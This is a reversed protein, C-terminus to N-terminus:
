SLQSISVTEIDNSVMSRMVLDTATDTGDVYNHINPYSDSSGDGMLWVQTAYNAGYRTLQFNPTTNPNAPQRFANGIKYDTVWSVPDTIMKKIETADPMEVGTNLTTVVMSAVKGRFSRNQGRGGVTYDGTISRDMRVGSSTFTRSGGYQPNPNFIWESYGPFMLRIDFADNLNAVTADTASLRTGNHGVYLGYWGTGLSSAIRYENYGVGERGWGFYLAGFQDTRVYINDDNTGAGEGQNWIHQNSNHDDSAFVMAVAWPKAGSANSTWNSGSVHEAVTGGGTNSLPQTGSGQFSPEAHESGGTFDLAKTWSTANTAGGGGGVAPAAPLNVQTFLSGSFDTVVGRSGLHLDISDTGTRDFSGSISFSGGGVIREEIALAAYSATSLALSIKGDTREFIVNWPVDVSNTNSNLEITSGVQSGQIFAQIQTKSSDGTKPRIKIFGEFDNDQIGNLISFDASASPIGIYFTSSAAPENYLAPWVYEDLYSASIIIREDEAVPDVIKVVSGEGLTDDDFMPASESIHTAGSIPQISWPISDVYWGNFNLDMGGSIDCWVLADYSDTGNGDTSSSIQRHWSPSFGRAMTSSQQYQNGTTSEAIAAIEDVVYDFGIDYAYTNSFGNNTAGAVTVGNSTSAADHGTGYKINHRWTTSSILKFEHYIGLSDVHNQDPNNNFSASDIYPYTKALNLDPLAVVIKGDTDGLAASASLAPIVISSVWSDPIFLRQGPAVLSSDFKVLSGEALTDEDIMPVSGSLFSGSANEFEPNATNLSRLLIEEVSSGYNNTKTVSVLHDASATLFSGTVLPMTGVIYDGVENVSSPLNSVSYDISTIDAPKFPYNIPSGEDLSLTVSANISPAYNVDIDTPHVNWNIDLANWESSSNYPTVTGLSASPTSGSPIYWVTDTLDDAFTYIYCDDSGTPGAPNSVYQNFLLAEEKTKFMPYYYSSDPSEITFYELGGDIISDTNAAWKVPTTFKSGTSIGKWSLVFKDDDPSADLVPTFSKIIKVFSGSYSGTVALYSMYGYGDEDFGVRYTVSQSPHQSGFEYLEPTSWQALAASSGSVGTVNHPQNDTEFVPAWYLGTLLNGTGSGLSSTQNVHSLGLAFAKNSSDITVQYYEGAEDIVDNQTYAVANNNGNPQEAIHTGGDTVTTGSGTITATGTIITPTTLVVGEQGGGGAETNTFKSNLSNVVTNIDGALYSGDISIQEKVLDDLQIKNSNKLILYIRTGDYVAKLTNVPYTNIVQGLSDNDLRERLIVTNNRADVSVDLKPVTNIHNSYPMEFLLQNRDEVGSLRVTSKSTDISTSNGFILRLNTLDVDSIDLGYEQSKFSVNDIEILNSARNSLQGLESGIYIGIKDSTNSLKTNTIRVDSIEAIYSYGEAQDGTGKFQVSASSFTTGAVASFPTRNNDILNTNTIRMNGVDTMMVGSNWNGKVVNDGIINNLGKSVRIGEHGNYNSFNNYIYANQTGFNTGNGSSLSIGTCLNKELFNSTVEVQEFTGCEIFEFGRYGLRADSNHIRIDSTASIEIAGGNINYNDNSSSWNQLQAFSSNYGINGGSATSNLNVGQGDWGNNVFKCHEVFVHDAEKIKIAWLGSNKFQIGTFLYGETNSGTPKFFIDGNDKDFSAYQITSEEDGYFHLMKNDPLVMSSTVTNTGKIFISDGNRANKIANTITNYPLINTGQQIGNYTPDVYIDYHGLSTEIVQNVKAYSDAIREWEQSGSNFRVQDNLEYNSSSYSGTTTVWYWDGNAKTSTDLNPNNTYANWTGKYSAEIDSTLSKNFEGNLYDVVQARTYTLDGVLNQGDQNQIRNINLKKLFIRFKSQDNKDKLTTSRIIVRNTLTPHIVAEVTKLEKPRVTSGEFFITASAVTSYIKIQAM